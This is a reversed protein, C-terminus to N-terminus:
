SEYIREKITDLTCSPVRYGMEKLELLTFYMEEHTGSFTKGDCPLNIPVYKAQVDYFNKHAEYTLEFQELSSYDIPPPPMTLRQENVHVVVMDDLGDAEYAYVDSEYGWRAYSM